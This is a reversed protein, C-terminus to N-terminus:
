YYATKEWTVPRSLLSNAKDSNLANRPSSPPSSDTPTPPNNYYHEKHKRFPMNNYYDNQKPSVFSQTSPPSPLSLAFTSHKDHAAHNTHAALNIPPLKIPHQNDVLMKVSDLPNEIDPAPPLLVELGSSANVIPMSLNKRPFRNPTPLIMRNNSTPVYGSKSFPELETIPPLSISSKNLSTNPSDMDSGKTPVHSRYITMPYVPIPKRLIPSQQPEIDRNHNYQQEFRPIGHSQSANTTVGTDDDIIVIPANAPIVPHPRASHVSPHNNGHALMQEIQGRLNPNEQLVNEIRRAPSKIVEVNGNRPGRKKATGTFECRQGARLCNPCPSIGTCKVKKKQCAKCAVTVKSRNMLIFNPLVGKSPKSRSTYFLNSFFLYGFSTFSHLFGTFLTIIIPNIIFFFFKSCFDLNAHTDHNGM